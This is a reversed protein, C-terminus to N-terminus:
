VILQKRIIVHVNEISIDMKIDLFFKNMIKKVYRVNYKLDLANVFYVLLNFFGLIIKQSDQAKQYIM